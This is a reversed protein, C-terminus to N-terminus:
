TAHRHDAPVGIRALTNEAYDFQILVVPEEGVVWSDHGPEIYVAQPAIFDFTCGDPYEGVLRGQAIFGVHAHMCRDTGVLPKVHESWRWGVGHVLRKIRTEGAAMVDIEIGGFTQHVAGDIPQVLADDSM